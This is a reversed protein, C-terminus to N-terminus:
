VVREHIIMKEAIQRLVPVAITSAYANPINTQKICTVVIRQYSDKQIIAACTYINKTQDYVGDILLNATGTKSMIDFGKIQARRCTGHTTTKRLIDKIITITEPKYLADKLPQNDTGDMVLIPKIPKGDNAIMCFAQALQLITASIEYGYSLSIISQKSWNSPPNVFGKNEAPLPIGTKTGFGVRIYHNYLREQLRNAVQAIGINNSFAIVESFPITGHPTWTNITRGDIICTKRNKCDILEEPKVVNEELAALATFVKMVSGLEYSETVARQKTNETSFEEKQNPNVYPYCSIALIEGNKPNM